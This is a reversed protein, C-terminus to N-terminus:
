DKDEKDDDDDEEDSCLDEVADKCTESLNNIQDTVINSLIQMLRGFTNKAVVTIEDITEHFTNKLEQETEKM